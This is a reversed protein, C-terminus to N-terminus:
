GVGQSRNPLTPRQESSTLSTTRIYCDESVGTKSHSPSIAPDMSGAMKRDDRSCEASRVDHYLVPQLTVNGWRFAEKPMQSEGFFILQFTIPAKQKGLLAAEIRKIREELRKM